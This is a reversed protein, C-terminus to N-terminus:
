NTEKFTVDAQTNTHPAVTVQREQTGLKEQWIAVTYTGPPLNGIRYSGDEGSVAFYPHDVVGIYAQMWSHINCKVHIMVEPRAFKRVLPPEGAGQSHNWERNIQAMPHISHTVPDSNTIQLAQNTQIGLIRPRFWCGNQDIAVPTSPTAFNKGELGSKVCVFANALGGKSSVVLSEDLAKGRHAEVCAPDGSMDIRKPLPRKGTFRITGSISGATLPDAQYAPVAPQQVQEPPATKRANPSCGTTVALCSLLCGFCFPRVRNM